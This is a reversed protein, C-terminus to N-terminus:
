PSSLKGSRITQTGAIKAIRQGAHAYRRSVRAYLVGAIDSKISTAERTVPDTLRAIEDGAQVRDGPAKAFSIVGARKVVIPLVGAFPTATCRLPPINAVLESAVIGNLAAFQLIADADRAALDDSVDAEGRLEVTASVCAPPIPHEPFMLALEAWPRSVAEDFPNDGSVDATLLAEVGLLAALPQCQKALFTTTYLHTVAEGDCHLDLVYDADFALKLLARKLAALESEVQLHTLEVQLAERILGVNHSADSNLKGLIRAAAGQTLEAFHRNFNSGDSLAFRGMPSGQISQSLGVPNACPVVVVHGRVKGERELAELRNCLHVAVLMGPIEDAHLSSQVYLQPRQSIDGFRYVTLSRATGATGFPIEITEIEMVIESSCGRQQKAATALTEVL